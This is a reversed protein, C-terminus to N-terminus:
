PIATGKRIEMVCKLAEHLGSILLGIGLGMYLGSDFLLRNRSETKERVEFSVTVTALDPGVHKWWREVEPMTFEWSLFRVERGTQVVEATPLPNIRKVEIGGPLNVGVITKGLFRGSYAHINPFYGLLVSHVNAIDRVCIPIMISYSSFEEKILFGNWDFELYLLFYRTALTSPFFKLYALSTNNEVRTAQTDTVELPVWSDTKNDLENVVANRIEVSYPVQVGVVEEYSSSINMMSFEVVLRAVGSNDDITVGELAVSWETIVAEQSTFVLFGYPATWKPIQVVTANHLELAGFSTLFLGVAIPFV